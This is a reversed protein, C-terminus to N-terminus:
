SCRQGPLRPSSRPNRDRPLLSQGGRTILSLHTCEGDRLVAEDARVGTTKQANRPDEQIDRYPTTEHISKRRRGTFHSSDSRTLSFTQVCWLRKFKNQKSTALCSVLFLSRPLSPLMMATRGGTRWTLIQTPWRPQPLLDLGTLVHNVDSCKEAFDWSTHDYMIMTNFRRAPVM